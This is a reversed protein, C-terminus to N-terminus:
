RKLAVPNDNLNDESILFLYYSKELGLISVKHKFKHVAQAAVIIIVM